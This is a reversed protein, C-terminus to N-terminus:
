GFLVRLDNDSSMVEFMAQTILSFGFQIMICHLFTTWYWLRFGYGFDDNCELSIFLFDECYLLDSDLEYGEFVAYMTVLIDFLVM